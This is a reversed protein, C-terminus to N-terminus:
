VGLLGVGLPGVGVGLPGVGDTVGVGLPGVGDIVGVGLPGVGEKGGDVGAVATVVGRIVVGDIPDLVVMIVGVIGVNVEGVGHTFVTSSYALVPLSKNTDGEEVSFERSFEPPERFVVWCDNSYLILSVSALINM